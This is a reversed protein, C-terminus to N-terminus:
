KWLSELWGVMHKFDLWYATVLWLDYGVAKVSVMAELRMELKKLKKYAVFDENKVLMAVGVLSDSNNVCWETKDVKVGGFICEVANVVDNECTVMGMSREVVSEPMGKVDHCEYPDKRVQQKETAASGEFNKTAKKM